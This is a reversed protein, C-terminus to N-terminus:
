LKVAEEFWGDFDHGFFSLKRTVKDSGELNELDLM